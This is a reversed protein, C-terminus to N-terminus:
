VSEGVVSRARVKAAAYNSQGFNGFIGSSSSVMVIRGFRRVGAYLCYVPLSTADCFIDDFPM